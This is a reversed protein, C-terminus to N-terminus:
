EKVKKSNAAEWGPYDRDYTGFPPTFVHADEMGILKWGVLDRNGGREPLCLFGMTTHTRILEFFDSKELAKLVAVQQEATAASFNEAGLYLEKLKASLQALGDAYLKQKDSAFSTLARDIFYVAGAERAGPTDDSPIIQAAVAEVERGQESTFFEFEVPTGLQAARHAHEQAALIAPWNAAMVASGMGLSAQGIFRRRSVKGKDM